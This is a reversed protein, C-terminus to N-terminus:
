QACEGHETAVRVLHTVELQVEAPASTAAFDFRVQYERDDGALLSKFTALVADNLGAEASELTIPAPDAELAGTWTFFTTEVGAVILTATLTFEGNEEGGTFSRLALSSAAADLHGCSIAEAIGAIEEREHPDFTETFTGSAGRFTLTGKFEAWAGTTVTSGSCAGFLLGCGLLIMLHKM